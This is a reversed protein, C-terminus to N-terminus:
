AKAFAKFDLNKNTKLALFTGVDNWLGM